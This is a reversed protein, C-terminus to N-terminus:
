AVFCVGSGLSFPYRIDAPVRPRRLRPRRLRWTREERPKPPVTEPVAMWIGLMVLALLALDALYPLVLPYPGYEALVAGFIPGVASGGTLAATAARAARRRDGEPHLETLAATAAGSLMGVAVRQMARAALLWAVGQALAFLSSGLSIALLGALVVPRRGVADSLRGFALLSVILVLCYVAFILTVMGASFGWEEAYVGYLPSLINTGLVALGLAFAVLLYAVTTPREVPSGRM